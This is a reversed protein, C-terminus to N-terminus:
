PLALVDVGRAQGAPVYAGVPEEAQRDHGAPNKQPEWDVSGVLHGGPVQESIPLLLHAEQGAPRAQGKSAVATGM